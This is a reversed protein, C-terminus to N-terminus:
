HEIRNNFGNVSRKKQSMSSEIVMIMEIIM